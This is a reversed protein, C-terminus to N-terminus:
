STKVVRISCSGSKLRQSSATIRVEGPDAASQVIALCRGNFAKRSKAKYSEHSKPDGNDLGILRGPGEVGFTIEDDATPVTRGADDVIETTFHSVDRRDAVIRDRDVSIAVAAPDGATFVEVTSALQGNKMGVAKLAGSEYPVDWSLHLDATSRPLMASSPYNGYSKEMGLRPFAYGKVGFSKGNLFLEVTDCNTFCLIPIIQGELGKWNWHPFLHLVPQSTWQSQYFYYGDKKFGCTDIVGSSSSKSPWRAEGLYDCGTWMFDGAVYDYTRVFRWQQEVDILINKLMRGFLGSPAGNSLLWDYDGRIGGFAGSETGIFKRNPHLHRDISYYKERRDRWRDVYNYGVVDLQALFEEPAAEPESAIHDCAATVSRTPDEEHFLGVLKTVTEIGDSADQDPIENGASWLVICPHNRDRRIMDATDSKWWQDFLEHYGHKVQGKAHRWEDFNEDMVLFGIRDCLDLLEPAPPNHSMRIANCGMDKLIELRREWVREPVAAGVPGADHHLCVGNLKTAEGNLLFGRDAHFRIERIGFTTEYEDAIEGSALRLESRATYLNTSAPNWLNPSALQVEQIFERESNPPLDESSETSLSAVEKKQRDLIRTVLSPRAREPTENRIRTRINIRAGTKSVEPTTIYTGWRAVHLPGTAVLWVHRYIGSGSYWRCNPQASNDVRVAILNEEGRALHPSLDYGFSIYGYPRSGLLYGNIWVESHQYVGDFEIFLKGSQAGKPIRLRKRYWGIGTPLYGGPGGAPETESYPGEISWDHPLDIVQWNSDDFTSSEAALDGRKFMWGFDLSQRVRTATYATSPRRTIASFAPAVAPIAITSSLIERRTTKHSM